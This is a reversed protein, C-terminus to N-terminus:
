QKTDSESTVVTRDDTQDSRPVKYRRELQRVARQLTKAIDPCHLVVGIEERTKQDLFTIPRPPVPEPMSEIILEMKEDPHLIIRDFDIYDALQRAGRLANLHCYLRFLNWALPLNPLIPVFSFLLTFPVALISGNLLKQHFSRREEALETMYKVVEMSNMGSPFVIKPSATELSNLERLFYEENPLRSLMRQGYKYVRGRISSSEAKSAQDWQQNVLNSIYNISRSIYSDNVGVERAKPGCAHLVWGSTSPIQVTTQVSRVVPTLIIRLQKKATM